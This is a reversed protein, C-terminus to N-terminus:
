KATEAAKTQRERFAKIFRRAYNDRGLSLDAALVYPRVKGADVIPCTLGASIALILFAYNLAERDPLNFSINSAGLTQNVDYQERIRRIAELVPVGAKSDAAIAMCLSDIIVDQRPIGLKEAREIIKGAIAVRDDAGKPLGKDDITLGFVACGYEKVMPLVAQLSKEEGKVSNLIPKGKYVKLAAELAKPSEADLCLPVDVVEQVAKVAKPLLDVEDVGTAGVNVDIIDAGAKAQAIAEKRVVDLDGALLAATLRKRGTPNIREGILVTPLDYGIKVEKTASSVRTEM